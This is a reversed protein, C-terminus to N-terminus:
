LGSPLPTLSPLKQEYVLLTDLRFMLLQNIGARFETVAEDIGQTVFQLRSPNLRSSVSQGTEALGLPIAELGSAYSGNVDISNPGRLRAQSFIL